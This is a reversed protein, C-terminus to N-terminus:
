TRSKPVGHVTAWWAGRDMPIRWALISSHTAMRKELPEEQGLSRVCTEQMAPLNKVTQVVLSAGYYGEMFDLPQKSRSVLYRLGSVWINAVDASNAVLDLSEYNEGHLISFACDECIQDALGNNRFTETNKGLRIEKIASIDLKAKELDKKSPEWRLAQLDTDLTFFRNYIRSNPRVKKLECGAQMFTICDSASSIKKESPMSSFSM